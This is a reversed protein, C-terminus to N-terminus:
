PQCCTGGPQNVNIGQICNYNQPCLGSGACQGIPNDAALPHHLLPPSESCTAAVPPAGCCVRSSGVTSCVYNPPCLGSTTCLGIAVTNATPCVTAPAM